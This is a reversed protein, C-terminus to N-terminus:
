QTEIHKIKDYLKSYSQQSNQKCIFYTNFFSSTDVTGIYLCNNKTQRIWVINNENIITNNDTKIYSSKDEM